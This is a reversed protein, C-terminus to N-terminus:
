GGPTTTTTSAAAVAQGTIDDVQAAPPPAVTVPTGFDFYDVTTAVSASVAPITTASSSQANSTAHLQTAVRRVRGETDLWVQIPFTSTGLQAEVAKIAAQLAPRKQAAVKTLDVTAKYETTAVGRITAPGVTVVGSSSVGQLYSLTQTSQQASSALQSLSQGLKAETVTNLNVSVWTKGAPLQAKDVAPLQLYLVPSVFRDSYTGTASSTFNLGGNGTAFDVSGQGSVTVREGPANATTQTVTETLTMRATKGGITRTYASLLVKPSSTSPKAASTSSSGCGALLVAAGLAVPALWSQRRWTPGCPGATPTSGARRNEM